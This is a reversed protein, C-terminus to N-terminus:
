TSCEEDASSAADAELARGKKGDQAVFFIKNSRFGIENM